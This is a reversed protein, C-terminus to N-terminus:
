FVTKIEQMAVKDQTNTIDSEVVYVQSPAPTGSDQGGLIDGLNTQQANTNATFSSAGAGATGGGGGSASALTPATGGQYKQALVSAIQTAGLVGSAIGFPLGLPMGGNNAISKLVALSTEIAIQSVKLAKERQFQAKKIKESENFEKLEIQHKQKAFKEELSKKQEDTLSQNSLEKQQKKTLIDLEAQSDEEIKALKNQGIVNALENLANLQDLGMQAQELMRTVNEVSDEFIKGNQEKIFDAKDKAIQKERDALEKALKERTANYEGELLIGEKNGEELIKLQEDISNKLDVRQQEFDDMVVARTKDFLEQKEKERRAREKIEKEGFIIENQLLDAHLQKQKFEMLAQEEDTMNELGSERLEKVKRLYTSERLRGKKFREDLKKIDDKIANDVILQKENEFKKKLEIAKIEKQFEIQKLEDHELNTNRLMQFRIKEIDKEAKIERQLNSKLLLLRENLFKDRAKKHKDRRKKEDDTLKKRMALIRNTDYEDISEQYALAKLRHKALAGDAVKQEAVTDWAIETRKKLKVAEEEFHAMTAEHTVKQSKHIREQAEEETKVNEKIWRVRSRHAKEESKMLKDQFTSMTEVTAKQNELAEALRDTDDALEETEDQAGMLKEILMGIAVVLAGVGTSIIALKLIKMSNATFLSARGLTKKSATLVNTSVADQTNASVVGKTTKAETGKVWNLLKTIIIRARIGLLSDKNLANAVANISNTVGMVAQLKVMVKMLDENESGVLATMSAVGQFISAGTSIAQMSTELHVYDSSLLKVRNDLDTLTDRLQSAQQIAQKGVPSTAGAQLALGQYDKIMKTQQQFTLTGSKLLANMEKLKKSLHDTGKTDKATKQTKNLSKDVDKVAKDFKKVDNVSNGTNVKLNFVAEKEAM